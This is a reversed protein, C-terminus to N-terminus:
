LKKDSGDKSEKGGFCPRTCSNVSPQLFQPHGINPWMGADIGPHERKRSCVLPNRYDVHLIFFLRNVPYDMTPRNLLLPATDAYPGPPRGCGLRIFSVLVGSGNLM